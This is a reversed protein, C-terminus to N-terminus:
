RDSEDILHYLLLRAKEWDRQFTRESAGRLALRKTLARPPEAATSGQDNM